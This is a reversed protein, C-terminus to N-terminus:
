NDRLPDYVIDIMQDIQKKTLPQKIFKDEQALKMLLPVNGIPAFAVSEFTVFEPAKRADQIDIKMQDAYRKIAREGGLYNFLTGRWFARMARKAVDRHAKVWNANAAIVRVSLNSLEKAATGRGVIRAEGKRILELNFPASSWATDTQGSMALTRSEAMGGTSVLKASLGLAKVLFQTALHTTSGPRSFALVKGGNLDKFTHIKSSVPTYWFIEGVGYAANALIVVPAGKAFAGVVSETGVGYAIDASGTIIAQLTASGGTGFITSVDLNEDKYYGEDRAQYLAFNGFPGKTSDIVRVKDAASAPATLLAAALLSAAAVFIGGSKVSFRM